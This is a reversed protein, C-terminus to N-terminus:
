KVAKWCTQQIAPTQITVCSNLQFRINIRVISKKIRIVMEPLGLPQEVLVMTIMLLSSLFGIIFVNLFVAKAMKEAHLLGVPVQKCNCSQIISLFAVITLLYRNTEQM